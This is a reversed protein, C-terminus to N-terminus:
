TVKLIHKTEPNRIVHLIIYQKSVQTLIDLMGWIIISTFGNSDSREVIPEQAQHKCM